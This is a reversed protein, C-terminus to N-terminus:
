GGFLERNRKELEHFQLWQEIEGRSWSYRHCPSGDKYIRFNPVGGMDAGRGIVESDRIEYGFRQARENLVEQYDTM